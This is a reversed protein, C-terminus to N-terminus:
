IWNTGLDIFHPAVGGSGSVYEHHPAQKILCLPLKVNGEHFHLSKKSISVSNKFVLNLSRLATLMIIVNNQFTVGNYKSSSVNRLFRRYRDEPYSFDM